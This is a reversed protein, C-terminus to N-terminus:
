THRCSTSRYDIFVTPVDWAAMLQWDDDTLAILKRILKNVNFHKKERIERGHRENKGSPIGEDAGLGKEL